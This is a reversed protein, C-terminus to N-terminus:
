KVKKESTSQACYWSSSGDGPCESWWLEVQVSRLTNWLRNCLLKSIARRHSKLTSIAAETTCTMKCRSTGPKMTLSEQYKTLYHHQDWDMHWIGITLLVLYARIKANIERTNLDGNYQFEIYNRMCAKNGFQTFIRNTSPCQIGPSYALHQSSCKNLCTLM